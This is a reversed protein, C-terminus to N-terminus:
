AADVAPEPADDEPVPVSPETGDAVAGVAPVPEAPPKAEGGPLRRAVEEAILVKLAELFQQTAMARQAAASKAALTGPTTLLSLAVILKETPTSGVPVVVERAPVADHAAPVPAPEVGGAAEQGDVAVGADAEPVVAAGPSPGAPGPPTDPSRQTNAVAQTVAQRQAAIAEALTARQSEFSRRIADRHAMAAQLIQVTPYPSPAPPQGPNPEPQAATTM